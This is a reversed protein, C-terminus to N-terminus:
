KKNVTYSTEHLMQNYLMHNKKFKPDTYYSSLGHFQHVVFPRDIIQIDMRKRKIRELFENDDFGIGKAFREDFGGLDDLDSKMIASCFHLMHPRFKSHNYWAIDGDARIARNNLPNLIRGVQNIHKTIENTVKGDVSYCGFNLYINEQINNLTYDIVDGFHLCEPNQIIIVDNTAEKFGINFPMCPNSWWKNAQEIRIIKLNLDFIDVFDEIRHENKSADDVVIIEIDDKHKSKEITKLTNFFLQRRNYYATVISIKM